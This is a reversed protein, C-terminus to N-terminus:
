FIYIKKFNSVTSFIPEKVIKATPARPCPNTM